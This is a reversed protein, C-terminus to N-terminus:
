YFNVPIYEQALLASAAAHAMLGGLPNIGQIMVNSSSLGTSIPKSLRSDIYAFKLFLGIM